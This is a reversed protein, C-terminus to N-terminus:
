QKLPRLSSASPLVGGLSAPEGWGRRDAGWGLCKGSQEVSENKMGSPLGPGEQPGPVGWLSPPGPCSPIGDRSVARGREAESVRRYPVAWM